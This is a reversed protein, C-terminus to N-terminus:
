ESTQNQQKEDQYFPLVNIREDIKELLLHYAESDTSSFQQTFEKESLGEPLEAMSPFFDAETLGKSAFAQVKAAHEPTTVIEAFRIGARDAALDAFSFGSGGKDSDMMEKVEGISFSLGKEALIHLAASYIFHKALDDRQALTFTMQRTANLRRVKLEDVFHRFVGPAAQVALAYLASTNESAADRSSHLTQQEAEALLRQLYDAASVSSHSSARTYDVLFALYHQVRETDFHLANGSYTSLREAAKAFGSQINNPPAFHVDISQPSIAINHVAGIVDKGYRKGVLVHIAKRFLKNSITDPLALAGIQVNQWLIGHSSEKLLARTNIYFRQGLAPIRVSVFFEAHEEELEVYGSLGLNSYHTVALTNNLEQQSASLPIPQKANIVSKSIRKIFNSAQKIEQSSLPPQADYKNPHVSYDASTNLTLAALTASVLILLM